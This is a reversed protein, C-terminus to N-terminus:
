VQTAADLNERVTSTMPHDAGLYRECDSLARQLVTVVDNLRGATYYASALNCRTTLTEVDGAGLMREGDALAREYQPIADNLRRAQQYAGALNSRATLTDRHDIGQVRERDALTREYAPIAERLRGASRYAFALNARAAITEPNDAGQVRERDALVREYAAIADKNKGATRFASALSARAAITDPHDRGHMREQDGLAREFADVAERHQGAQMCATGLSNRAAVAIPHAPGLLRDADAALQGYAGIAERLKGAVQYAGALAARATFTNPHGPGFQQESDAVTRQFLAVADEPRGATQYAHALHGRAAITEPHDPGQNRERDALATQFVAIAEGSLGAAEYASALRDRATVTDGHGAGVLRTATGVMSQWYSIAADGLRGTELSRGARFLLPHAEPKWLMSAALPDTRLSTTCDRLAQELLANVSEDEPWTELLADAATLVVQEVDQRPLWARVAAQVSAHMRVTRVASDPDIVVLGAHSLNNIAARVLNQDQGGATSPHGTIYSCAAPSTLVAGPIGNRDLMAALALAPWALGAPQLEHACEAALSWSALVQAPVGDIDNMHKLRDAFMSRYERCGLKRTKMVATAQALALPLGELDEGLDLAEIRQDPYDVLRSSLYSLSERRTFGSVPVLRTSATALAPASAIEAPTLSTTIVVRGAQGGPWLDALDTLERLDDLVLAWPRRTHGLWSVFRAAAQEATEAPNAGDVTGVAQAFGSVVTERSSATVWILVEVLRNTWMAHTFEVALQTKGTGSPGPASGPNTTILAAQGAAMGAEGHTLVITEGPRISGPLDISSETRAYYADALPPVIGSLVIPSQPATGAQQAVM